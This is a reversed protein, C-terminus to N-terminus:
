RVDGSREIRAKRAAVWRANEAAARARTDYAQGPQGAKQGEQKLCDEYDRSGPALQRKVQCIFVEPTQLTDESNAYYRRSEICEELIEPTRNWGFVDRCLNEAQEQTFASLAMLMPALWIWRRM